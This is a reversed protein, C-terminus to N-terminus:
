PDIVKYGYQLLIEKAWKIKDEVRQGPPQRTHWIELNEIRNDNRIGNIHHINENPFLQRGLKKEMIYKHELIARGYDVISDKVTIYVYGDKSICGSGAKGKLDPHDLPLCLRKRTKNRITKCNRENRLKYKEPNNIRWKIMKCQYCLKGWINFTKNCKICVKDKVLKHAVKKNCLKSCYIADIRKNEIINNCVPCTKM